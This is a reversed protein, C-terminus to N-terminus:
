AEEKVRKAVANYEREADLITYHNIPNGMHIQKMVYAAIYAALGENM